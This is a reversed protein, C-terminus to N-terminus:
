TGLLVNARPKLPLQSALSPFFIKIEKTTSIKEAIVIYQGM